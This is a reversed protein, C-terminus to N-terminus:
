GTLQGKRVLLFVTLGRVHRISALRYRSQVLAAPGAPVATYPYKQHNRGIIWIRPEDGLLAAPRRCGPPRIGPSRLYTTPVFLDRLASAGNPMDQQLYYQLGPGIMKWTCRDPYIIGDTARAHGAIIDAAGAYDMYTHAWPTRIARQPGLGLVGIVLVAVAALRVDIRSLGIGALMAWAVLTFLLYRYYFYSHPGQSLLWIVAVPLLVMATAFAAAQRDVVWALLSLVIVAVAVWTSLFPDRAFNDLAYLDIGPRRIWFIQGSAKGLSAVALPVCLALGAGAAVAFGLLRGERDRWWRLAAGVAHGAVVSLAVLDVYGVVALCVGYAAWRRASPADLARLLLLTALAVALMEPAYFRVEQAFRSVSPLLAFVLGALLGARAGALRRGALTVCAAAGAMALVSLMRMALVSDGFAGMWYHLALDYALEAPNSKSASTVLAHVPDTAFSWSWLEDRWLEPRNVQYCGLVLTLLSPWLWVVRMARGALGGFRTRGARAAVGDAGPPTGDRAREDRGVTM